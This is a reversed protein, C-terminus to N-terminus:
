TGPTGAPPTVPQPDKPVPDSKNVPLCVFVQTGKALVSLYQSGRAKIYSECFPPNDTVHGETWNVPAFTGGASFNTLLNDQKIVNAQTLNSGADKVGQAFLAAAYWGQIALEDYTYKPQFKNMATLYTALGPYYKTPATFPVHQVGFYVGQMLSKYANLTDQDSGNFWYETAKSGFDKLYRALSVNGTVDMCSIVLQAGSSNIRDAEPEVNGGYPVALNTYAQKYGAQPLYTNISNCANSSAAVDYAITAYSHLHLRDMAYAIETPIQPYYLASGTSAFLNPAGAWNHTVNYGYTPTCSQVLFTPSFFATAVGVMAFVHDQEVATHVLQSYQSPNGDDNLNYSLSLKRHNVGGINNVYDFYAEVGPVMADFDGALPGTQTSISGVTIRNSTVGPAGTGQGAPCTVGPGTTAAGATAAPGGIAPALAPGAMVWVSLVAGTAAVVSLSRIRQLTRRPRGAGTCAGGVIHNDVGSGGQPRQQTARPIDPRFGAM